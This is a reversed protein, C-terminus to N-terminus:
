GPDASPMVTHAVGSALGPGGSYEVVVLTGNQLFRFLDAPDVPADHALVLLYSAGHDTALRFRQEQVLTIRGRATKTQTHM